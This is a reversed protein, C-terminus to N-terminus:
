IYNSGNPCATVSTGPGRSRENEAGRERERERERERCEEIVLKVRRKKGKRRRKVRRKKGRAKVLRM